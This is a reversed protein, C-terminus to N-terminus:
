SVASADAPKERPRTFFGLGLFLADHHPGAEEHDGGHRRERDADRRDRHLRLESRAGRVFRKLM